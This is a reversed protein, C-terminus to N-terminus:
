LIVMNKHFFTYNQGNPLNFLMGRSTYWTTIPIGLIAFLNCAHNNLITWVYTKDEALLLLRRLKEVFCINCWFRNILDFTITSFTCLSCFKRHNCQWPSGWLKKKGIKWNRILEWVQIINIMFFTSKKQPPSGGRSKWGFNWNRIIMGSNLM